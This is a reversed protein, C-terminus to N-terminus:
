KKRRGNAMVKVGSILLGPLLHSTDDDSFITVRTGRPSVFAHEATPVKYERGDATYVIFPVFPRAALYERIDDTMHSNYDPRAEM